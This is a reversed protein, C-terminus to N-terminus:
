EYRLAILPDVRIARLAPFFSAALAVIIVLIAVVAYTVPDTAIVGFLLSSMLRTLALAGASGILVGILAVWAGQRMVLRMVDRKKAGLALRIGFEPTRQVVFYSIVGYIGVAGLVLAFAAFVAFLSTTSRPTSISQSVVTDLAQIESVAVDPSLTLIMKRLEGTLSAQGNTTRMMLTMETPRPTGAGTGNGYPAYIAGDFYGPLKSALSYENVDGVVGIVTIWDSKWTRRIHKGIPDQGPWFKQATAATILAVPSADPWMDAATFGRGIMLPVGMLRLYNPTTITEFLVLAPDKPDRPHDELDASFANIRGSLPMVNVAAADEVGPLSRSRELLESYFGQCRAFDPCFTKNPTIRASLIFETRFGPNVRSLEWLSKMLLGAGVLLVLALAVETIALGNRLRHTAAATSHRGGTKLSDMLDIRSAHLAPAIGFLLGVLVATVAIFAMIQWDMVVGTIRPTDEPLISKLLHLGAVAVVIGFAGGSIGLLVSETLLQRCIRPRAAGLAARLAMEKQRTTARALLLNAVNACAILLVLGIAGFLLLLKTRIDGVLSEQLPIVTSSSWLLDPLKWPFMERMHPIYARLEARAQEMKAGARLRAIVPMFGGGWYAGYSRTDLHLPVWFQPKSASLQFGAPMIGIIQRSEGGLTV